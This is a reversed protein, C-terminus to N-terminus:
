GESNRFQIKRGDATRLADAYIDPRFGPFADDDAFGWVTVQDGTAVPMRNRWGIYIDIRGSDDRLVFEDSDKIRHVTGSLVVPQGRRVEKIPMAELPVEAIAPNDSIKTATPEAHMSYLLSLAAISIGAISLSRTTPTNM